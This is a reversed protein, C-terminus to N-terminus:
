LPIGLKQLQRIRGAIMRLYRCDRDSAYEGSDEEKKENPESAGGFWKSSCGLELKKRIRLSDDQM